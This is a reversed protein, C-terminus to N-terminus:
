EETAAPAAETEPQDGGQDGPDGDDETKGPEAKELGTEGDDEEASAQVEKQVEENKLQATEEEGVQYLEVRGTEEDFQGRMTLQHAFLPMDRPLNNLNECAQSM